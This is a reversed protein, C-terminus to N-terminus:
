GPALSFKLNKLPHGKSDTLRLVFGWNHLANTIKVLIPTTGKPLHVSVIDRDLEAWGEHPFDLVPARGAM